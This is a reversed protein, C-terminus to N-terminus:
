ADAVKPRLTPRSARSACNAKIPQPEPQVHISQLLDLAHQQPPTPTTTMDITSNTADNHLEDLKVSFEHTAAVVVDSLLAARDSDRLRDLARGLADDSFHQADRHSSGFADSAFTGVM